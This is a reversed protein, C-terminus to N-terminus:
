DLYTPRDHAGQGPGTGSTRSSGGGEPQGFSRSVSGHGWRMKRLGTGRHRTWRRRREQRWAIIVIVLLVVLPVALVQVWGVFGSM